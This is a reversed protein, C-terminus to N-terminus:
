GRQVDVICYVAELYTIYGHNFNRVIKKITENRQRFAENGYERFLRENSKMEYSAFEGVFRPNTKM